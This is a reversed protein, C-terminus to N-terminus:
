WADLTRGVVSVVRAAAGFPRVDGTVRGIVLLLVSRTGPSEPTIEAVPAVTIDSRTGIQANRTDSM